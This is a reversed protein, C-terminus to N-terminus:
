EGQHEVPLSCTIRTGHGPESWAEFEGGLGRAREQMSALGLHKVDRSVAWQQYDFGRGDDRITLCLRAPAFDLVVSVSSAQAHKAVNRLAEEVARFVAIETPLPLRVPVGTVQVDCALGTLEQFGGVYRQLAPILGMGNLIPPHLDYIARRIEKEMAALVQHAADLKEQVALTLAPDAVVQAAKLEYRAATVLQIVGDHMDRAIRAREEEQLHVTKDLLARLQEAQNAIEEKARELEHTRAGVKCELEQSFEKLQTHLEANQIAITALDAFLSLLWVDNQDFIREGSENLVGIAGIIQDEWRLPVGIVVTHKSDAFKEVRGEWHEYDNVTLPEGSAIVRGILGEGPRLSAGRWDSWTNYNAANEIVGRARDYLFLSAAQAGLLQAGRRLLAQLLDARNLQAIIDLSTAHLVMLAEYRHQAEEYLRANEIAMGVRDGIATLVRRDAPPFAREQRSALHIVGVARGNAKMPICLTSGFGERACLTGKLAPEAWLDDIAILKGSRVCAGCMCYSLPIASECAVFDSSVGHHTKLILKGDEVLRLGAAQLGLLEVMKELAVRLLPELGLSRNVVEGIANLTALEQNRIALEQRAKAEAVALQVAWSLMLWALAPGVLGIVLVTRIVHPDQISHGELALQELLMYGAGVLAIASPVAWRLFSVRAVLSSRDRLMAREV